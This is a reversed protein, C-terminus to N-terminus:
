RVSNVEIKEEEEDGLILLEVVPRVETKGKNVLTAPSSFEIQNRSSRIQNPFFRM